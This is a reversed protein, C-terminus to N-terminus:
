KKMLTLTTNKDLINSITMLFVHSRTKKLLGLEFNQFFLGREVM